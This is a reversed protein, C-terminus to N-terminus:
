SHTSFVFKSLFHEGLDRASTITAPLQLALTLMTLIEGASRGQRRLYHISTAGASKSLKAGHEDALLPHHYFTADSFTTLGAARALYLQALTSDWLDAGRVILDVGFHIDDAVSTLQYSPFGDKKRVVFNHMSQPLPASATGKHLTNVLLPDADDTKLRWSVGPADLPINKHRCTGPYAGDAQANSIQSRSCECAFVLGSNRLRQLIDRYLGLRHVQSFTLQFAHADAPGENWAIGLFRLTDFIDEIFELQTRDRDMDDIRLLTRAGYRDALAQTIAFSVINGIHLFGSPTPAIRTRAFSTTNM